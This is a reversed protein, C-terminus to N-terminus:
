ARDHGLLWRDPIKVQDHRACVWLGHSLRWGNALLLGRGVEDILDEATTSHWIIASHCGNTVAACQIRHEVITSGTSENM